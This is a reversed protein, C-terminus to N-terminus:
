GSLKLPPLQSGLDDRFRQHILRFGPIAKNICISHHEKRKSIMSTAWEVSSKDM